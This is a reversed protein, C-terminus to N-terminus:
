VCSIAPSHKAQQAVLRHSLKFPGLQFPTLLALDKNVSGSEASGNANEASVAQLPPAAGAGHAGHGMKSQLRVETEKQLGCSDRELSRFINLVV